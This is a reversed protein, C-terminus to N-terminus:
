QNPTNQTSKKKMALIICVGAIILVVVAGGIILWINISNEPQKSEAKAKAELDSLAQPNVTNALTGEIIQEDKEYGQMKQLDMTYIEDIKATVETAGKLADKVKFSVSFVVSDDKVEYGNMANAANFYVYGETDMNCVADSFAPVSATDDIVDLYRSDYAVEVNIGAVTNNPVNKLKLVYTYTDGAKVIEGNVTADSAFASIASISFLLIACLLTSLIRASLKTTYKVM